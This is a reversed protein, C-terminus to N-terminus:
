RLTNMRLVSSTFALFRIAPTSIEPVEKESQCLERFLSAAAAGLWFARRQGCSLQIFCSLVKYLM